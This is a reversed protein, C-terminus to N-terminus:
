TDRFLAKGKKTRPMKYAWKLLERCSRPPDRHMDRNWEELWVENEYGSDKLTKSLAFAQLVSGISMCSCYTIIKVEKKM